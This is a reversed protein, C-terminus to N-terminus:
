ERIQPPPGEPPPKLIFTPNHEQDETMVLKIHDDVYVVILKLNKRIDLQILPNNEAHIEYLEPNKTVNLETLQNDELYVYALLPFKTLDIHNLQNGYLYLAMLRPCKIIDISTLSNNGAILEELAVLNELRLFQMGNTRCNLLKLHNMGRIILTDIKNGYCILEELNVFHELGSLHSIGKNCVDLRLVLKAEDYEIEGNDNLDIKVINDLLSRKFLSDRFEIHQGFVFSSITLILLSILFHKTM